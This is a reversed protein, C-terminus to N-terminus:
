AALKLSDAPYSVATSDLTEGTSGTVPVAVIVSQHEPPGYVEVVTGVVESLGWPVLVQDGINFSTSAM